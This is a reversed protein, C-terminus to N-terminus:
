SEGIICGKTFNKWTHQLFPSKTSCKYPLINSLDYLVANSHHRLPRSPTEFWWGRLQKSLRKNLCQDFFIDFNRTVPRQSPFEGCLPGTVRSIIGKLSTRMSVFRTFMTYVFIREQAIFLVSRTGVSKLKLLKSYMRFWYYVYVLIDNTSLYPISIYTYILTSHGCHGLPM